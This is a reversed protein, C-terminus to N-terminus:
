VDDPQYFICKGFKRQIFSVLKQRGETSTALMFQIMESKVRNLHQEHRGELSNKLLQEWGAIRLFYCATKLKFFLKYIVVLNRL